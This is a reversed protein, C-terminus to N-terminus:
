VLMHKKNLSPRFMPSYDETNDTSMSDKHECPINITLEGLISLQNGMHRIYSIIFAESNYPFTM